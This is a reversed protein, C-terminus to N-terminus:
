GEAEPDAEPAAPSTGANVVEMARDIGHTLFCDVADVAEDMRSALTASEEPDFRSLVFDIVERDPGPPRGVGFRLRPFQSDGLAAIISEMGRHGGAGGSSRLRLRGFPLDLDDYIVLLDRAPNLESCEALALGLSEGSANMFTQPQLCGTPTGAVSGRGYRARWCEEQLSIGHRSAFAAVIAFGINHRTGM